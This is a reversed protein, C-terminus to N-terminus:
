LPHLLPLPAKLASKDLRCGPATELYMSKSKFVTGTAIQPPCQRVSVNVSVNIRANVSGGKSWAGMRWRVGVQHRTVCVCMCVCLRVSVCVCLCGPMVAHFGPHAQMARLDSQRALAQGKRKCVRGFACGGKHQSSTVCAVDVSLYVQKSALAIPSAAVTPARTHLQGAGGRKCENVGAGVGMWGRSTRVAPFEAIGCFYYLQTM